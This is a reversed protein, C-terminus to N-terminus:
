PLRWCTSQCAVSFARSITAYYARPNGSLDYVAFYTCYLYVCSSDGANCVTSLYPLSNDVSAAM